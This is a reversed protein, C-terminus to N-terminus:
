EFVAAIQATDVGEKAVRLDHYAVVICIAYFAGWVGNWIVQAVFSPGAGAVWTLPEGVSEAISNVVFWFGM